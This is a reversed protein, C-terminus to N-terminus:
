DKQAARALAPRELCRQLWARLQPYAAFDVRTTQTWQLVSAVNLDAVSFREGLLYPQEALAEELRAFAPQLQDIYRQAKADSREMDFLGLVHCMANLLPKEVETMVWFSWHNAQAEEELSVPTLPSQYKKALYLNIAMSEGLQLGDDVIAPVRAFPNIQRYDATKADKAFSTPVHDYRLDAAAVLEEAMWLARIARSGSQGYVTLSM